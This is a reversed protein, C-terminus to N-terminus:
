DMRLIELYNSRKFQYAKIVIMVISIAVAYLGIGISTQMDYSYSLVKSMGSFYMAVDVFCPMILVSTVLSAIVAFFVIAINEVFLTKFILTRSGGITHLMAFETKRKEIFVMMSNQAMLVAITTMILLLMELFQTNKIANSEFNEKLEDKTVLSPQVVLNEDFHKDIIDSVDKTNAGDDLKITMLNTHIDPYHQKNLYVVNGMYESSNCIGVVKLNYSSDVDDLTIMDGLAIQGNLMLGEGIIVHEGNDGFAEIAEAKTGEIFSHDFFKEYDEAEIFYASINQGEIQLFKSNGEHIEKVGDISAIFKLSNSLQENNMHLANIYIDGQYHKEVKGVADNRISYFLGYMAMQFAVIAIITGLLSKMQGRNRLLGRFSLFLNISVISSVVKGFWNIFIPSLYQVGQIALFIYVLNILNFMFPDIQDILFFRTLFLLMSAVGIIAHKNKYLDDEANNKKYQNLMRIASHGKLRKLQIMMAALPIVLAVIVSLILTNTNAPQLSYTGYQVGVLLSAFAMGLPIGIGVASVGLLANYYSYIRLSSKHSIGMTRYFGIQAIQDNIVIGSLNFLVGCVVAILAILVFVVSYVFSGIMAKRTLSKQSAVNVYSLQTYEKELTKIVSSVSEGQALNIYLLNPKQEPYNNEMITRPIYAKISNRGGFEYISGSQMSGSLTYVKSRNGIVIDISSDPEYGLTEVFEDSFYVPLENNSQWEFLASNISGGTLDVGYIYANQGDLNGEVVTGQQYFEVFTAQSINELADHSEGDYDYVLLDISGFRENLQMDLHDQSYNLYILAMNCLVVAFLISVFIAISINMKDKILGIAFKIMESNIVFTM